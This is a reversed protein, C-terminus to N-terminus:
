LPKTDATFGKLEYSYSFTECKGYMTKGSIRRHNTTKSIVFCTMGKYTFTDQINLDVSTDQISLVLRKNYYMYGVNGEWDRAKEMDEEYTVNISAARINTIDIM